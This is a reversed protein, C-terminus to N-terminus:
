KAERTMGLMSLLDESSQQRLRAGCEPCYLHDDDKAKRWIEYKCEMCVAQLRAPKVVDIRMAREDNMM